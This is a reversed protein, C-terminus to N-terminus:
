GGRPSPWVAHDGSCPTCQCRRGWCSFPTSSSDLGKDTQRDIGASDPETLTHQTQQPLDAPRCRSVRVLLVQCCGERMAVYSQQAPQPRDELPSTGRHACRTRTSAAGWWTGRLRNSFSLCTAWVIYAARVILLLFCCRADFCLM